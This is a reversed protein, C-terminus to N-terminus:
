RKGAVPTVAPRLSLTHHTLNPQWRLNTPLSSAARGAKRPVPIIPISFHIAMFHTSIIVKREGEFDICLENIFKQLLYTLRIQWGIRWHVQYFYLYKVVGRHFGIQANM